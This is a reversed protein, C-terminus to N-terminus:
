TRLGTKFIRQELKKYIEYLLFGLIIGAIYGSIVDMPYHVRLYIRSYGFVVPFLLLIFIWKFHKRLLFVIFVSFTSSVSAHGSYFSFGGPRYEFQRLYQQLETVNCPRTRQTIIKVINTLQDAFAVLVVLYLFVFAGKKTGFKHFILFLIIGFLPIWNFQKTIALWFSDWQKNGLNNLYILLNTDFHLIEDLM